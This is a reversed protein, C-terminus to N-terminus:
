NSRCGLTQAVSFPAFPHQEPAEATGPLLGLDRADVSVVRQVLSSDGTLGQLIGAFARNGDDLRLLAADSDLPGPRVPTDRAEYRYTIDVTKM